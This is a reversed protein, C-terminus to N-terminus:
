LRESGVLETHFGSIVNSVTFVALLTLGDGRQLVTLVRSEHLWVKTAFELLSM